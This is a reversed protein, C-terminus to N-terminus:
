AGLCDRLKQAINLRKNTQRWFKDADVDVEAIEGTERVVVKEKITVDFTQDIDKATRAAADAQQELDRKVLWDSVKQIFEPYNRQIKQKSWVRNLYREATAVDVDEPLLDVEIAKKKIPDYLEKRFVEAARMAYPDDVDNRMARGVLENFERKKLTGGNAKYENFINDKESMAKYLLGDYSKVKTEVSQGVFGDVDLFNEVLRASAQRVSKADSVVTRSLPDTPLLKLIARAVRGRVVPDSDVAAASISGDAFTSNEGNARRAEVDMVREIDPKDLLSRVAGPAAGLFGGFAAAFAVNTAAEGYTREVQTHMLAAESATAGMASSAATIAAGKLISDGARYTRYSAGGVPIFNIPDASAAMLSPLFGGQRLVERDSLERDRQRRAAELEDKNDAYAAVGLFQRDFKEEETLDNWVDYEGKTYVDPLGGERAMYSGLSNELRFASRLKEKFGSGEFGEIEPIGIERSLLLASDPDEIWPM